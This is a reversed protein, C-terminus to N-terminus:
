SFIDYEDETPTEFSGSVACIKMATIMQAKMGPAVYAKKASFAISGFEKNM